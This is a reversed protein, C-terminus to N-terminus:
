ELALCEFNMVLYEELRLLRYDFTTEDRYRFKFARRAPIHSFVDFDWSKWYGGDDGIVARRIAAACNLIHDHEAENKSLTNALIIENVISYQGQVSGSLTRGQERVSASLLLEGFESYNGPNQSLLYGLTKGVRDDLFHRVNADALLVQRLVQCPKIIDGM